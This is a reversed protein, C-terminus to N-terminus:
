KNESLTAANAKESAAGSVPEQVPKALPEVVSKLSIKQKKVLRIPPLDQIMKRNVRGSLVDELARTILDQVPPASADKSQLEYAWRRALFVIDYKNMTTDLIMKEVGGKAPTQENLSSKEGADNKDVSKSNAEKKM